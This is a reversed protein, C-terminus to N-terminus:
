NKIGFIALTSIIEKLEYLSSVKYDVDTALGISNLGRGRRMHVTRFGLERAPALDVPIKDGCVLIEEPTYGLEDALVQYHVKKNNVESVIIKSFIGSDIGAKKLKELQQLERGITVIALRHSGSLEQLVEHAGELPDISFDLSQNEYVEKVAISFLSSDAGLIELFEALAGKASEAALDLRKLLQLADAFNPIVLGARVMLKLASELKHPTICGSTDVLTDDLDFIILM